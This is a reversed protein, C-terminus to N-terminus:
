WVRDLFEPTDIRVSIGRYRVTYQKVFSRICTPQVNITDLVLIQDSIVLVLPLMLRFM